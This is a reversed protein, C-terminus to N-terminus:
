NIIYGKLYQSRERTMRTDCQLQLYEAQAQDSTSVAAKMCNRTKKQIWERQEDLLSKQINRDMSNWIRNIESEAAQNQARAQNLDSQLLSPMDPVAAAPSLIETQSSVEAEPVGEADSAANNELIAEPDPEEPPEGFTQNLSMRLAEEKSVAKGDIVVISKVGYPLLAAFVTQATSTVTNDAFSFNNADPMYSVPASFANGTFSLNSGMVKQEILDNIAIEGYILPSNTNATSIINDPVRVTLEASCAIQSGRLEGSISGLEIILDSAAAIIKDADVFQRSDNRAFARAEQKVIDQIQIRVNQEVAPNSCVKEPQPQEVKDDSCAALCAALIPLALLKQYM